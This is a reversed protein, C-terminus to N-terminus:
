YKICFNTVVSRPRVTASNGYISNSLSADFYLITAADGQKAQIDYGYNDNTYIAGNQSNMQFAGSGASGLRGTINPLGATKYEGVLYNTGNAGCIWQAQTDPM